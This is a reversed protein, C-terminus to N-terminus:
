SSCWTAAISRARHSCSYKPRISSCEWSSFRFLLCKGFNNLQEYHSYGLGWHGDTGLSTRTFNNCMRSHLLCRFSDLSTLFLLIFVSLYTPTILSVLQMRTIWKKATVNKKVRPDLATLLYYSYMITHVFTNLFGVFTVHGGTSLIYIDFIQRYSVLQKRKNALTSLEGPSYAIGYWVGLVM